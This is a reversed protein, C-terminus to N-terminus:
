HKKGRKGVANPISEITRPGNADLAKASSAKTSRPLKLRTNPEEISRQSQRGTRTSIISAVSNTIIEGEEPAEEHGKSEKQSEKGEVEDSGADEGNGELEDLVSFRSPSIGLSVESTTPEVVHGVKAPSVKQWIEKTLTNGPPEAEHNNQTTVFPSAQEPERHNLDTDCLDHNGARSSKPTESGVEVESQFEGEGKTNNSEAGLPAILQNSDDIKENLNSKVPEKQLLTIQTGKNVLCVETVHGWKKCTSCRPPLRPYTYKVVADVGKSSTFRHSTSLENTLDVEVLVKAEEFSKCLLTDQHLKKAEGVASALFGLGKESFLKHPVNHITVWLQVKKLNPQQDEQLPSWKSVWMPINAIEWMGRNLVRNRVAQNKIRFKVTTANVEFADIKIAKDGLSWIKNVIVHVKAVHPATNPFNGILFDEWLPVSKEVVEDRIVVVPSGDMEKFSFDHRALCNTSQVVSKWTPKTLQTKAGEQEALVDVSGASLVETGQEEM